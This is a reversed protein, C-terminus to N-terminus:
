DEIKKQTKFETKRPLQSERNRGFVYTPMTQKRGCVDVIPGLSLFKNATKDMTGFFGIFDLANLPDFNWVETLHGNDQTDGITRLNGKDTM